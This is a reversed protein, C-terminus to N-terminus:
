PLACFYSRRRDGRSLDPCNRRDDSAHGSANADRSGFPLIATTWERSHRLNWSSPQRAKLTSRLGLNILAAVADFLRGCRLPRLMSKIGRALMTDVMDVQKEPWTALVANGRSTSRALRTGCIASRWAGPSACPQMAAPWPVYRLHARREFGAFDAVLFEGGWIKGDTGYGTGDFAVGIVKGQSSEGGHLQRHARSSAARRNQAGAAAELAFRTSPLRSASRLGGRAARRPLAEEPQGADGRFVGADRFEGSRRHAPQPDRLQGQDPLVHEEARRRLGPGRADARGSRGAAARLRALARLVRERGEFRACWPITRACTSIAITFCFGIPWRSAAAALSRRQSTVIPEESLNGSTMVLAAFEPPDDPSDSFLLYHLPTYPLMVGIRTTAPRSRPASIKADPAPAADCHAPAPETLAARDAGLDSCFNEVAALDRAMLAFAQRQPTQAHAVAACRWREARRLGASIRGARQRRRDEGERLLERARRVIAASADCLSDQASPFHRDPNSRSVALAPGACRARMPSPMFAAIRLTKTNRRAIHACAFRRCPPRRAITRFTKFSPTARAATPATPSPIATAATRRIASIAGASTALRWTRRSSPSNTRRKAAPSFPSNM